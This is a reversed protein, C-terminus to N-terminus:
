VVSSEAILEGTEFRKVGLKNWPLTPKLGLIIEAMIQGTAPGLMFGHGSFGAAVYFGKVGPLEDYIPHKDPSMNYLGAWQRLMRLNKLSPMISTITKAMNEPFSSDATVRLDRPQDACSRGMVFSGHPVQQCYFNLSLSMVMTSLMDDVPETVLINHREAYLPLSQNVFSAITNTFGGAANVVVPTAIFGQTTDVGIIRDSETKIGVVSTDTYIHGGLRTFADAFAQTTKFPNLHGDRHHYAAALFRNNNLIPALEIAQNIDLLKSSIGLSNQLTINKKTQILEEQNAVLLMYGGQHFEIDDLCGLEEAANEFFNCSFQTLLCNMESGWQQRIGAGCRGTAGATLFDRELILVNKAGNKVLFYGIATGSIGGGIIVIDAVKTM